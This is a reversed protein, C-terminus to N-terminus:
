NMIYVARTVWEKRLPEYSVSVSLKSGPKIDLKQVPVWETNETQKYLKTNKETMIFQPLSDDEAQFLIQIGESVNKIEKLEGLFNYTFYFSSVNRNSPDIPLEVKKDDQGALSKSESNKIEARFFKADKFTAVLLLLVLIVFLIIFIKFPIVILVPRRFKIKM